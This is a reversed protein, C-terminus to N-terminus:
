SLVYGLLGENTTNECNSDPSIFYDTGSRCRYIPAARSNTSQDIYIYGLPGWAEQNECNQHISPFNRKDHTRVCEFILKTNAQYERFLKWTRELKYGSPLPRTTTFHGDVSHLARKLLVYPLHQFGCSLKNPIIDFRNTLAWLSWSRKYQGSADVLGLGLGDKTEVPHDKMRHYVF